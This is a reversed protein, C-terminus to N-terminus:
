EQAVYYSELEDQLYINYEYLNALLGNIKNSTKEDVNTGSLLLYAICEQVNEKQLQVADETFTPEYIAVTSSWDSIYALPLIDLFTM